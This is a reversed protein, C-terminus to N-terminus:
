FRHISAHMLHAARTMSSYKPVGKVGGRGAGECKRSFDNSTVITFYYLM